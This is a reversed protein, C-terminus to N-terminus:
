KGSTAQKKYKKKKKRSDADNLPIMALTSIGLYKEVDEETQITDNLLHSLIVIAAVILIGLMGGMMTNNGVSPSAKYTPMNATEVVNVAEIDMVNRIHISAAERVANAIKMAMVPSSDTVTISIVRTDTPTSVAVKGSLQEYSIPLDLQEIVAELVFRSKILESYDKVLQTGVQLDNYTVNASSNDQKNLIYIKTVSQYTPAMLFKSGGFALLAAFLGVAIMLPLKRWLVWFLEVLDIETEENSRQNQNEM